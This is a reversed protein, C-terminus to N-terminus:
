AESGRWRSSSSRRRLRHRRERHLRLWISGFAKRGTRRDRPLCTSSSFLRLPLSTCRNSIPPGRHRRLLDEMTRLHKTSRNSILFNHHRFVPKSLKSSPTSSVLMGTQQDSAMPPLSVPRLVTRNSPGTSNPRNNSNSCRTQRGASHTPCTSAVRCALATIFHKPLLCSFSLLFFSANINRLTMMTNGLRRKECAM